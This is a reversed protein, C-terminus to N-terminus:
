RNGQGPLYIQFGLSVGLGSISNSSSIDAKSYTYGLAAELAVSRTIFHAYGAKIGALFAVDSTATSGGIGVEGEGFFRGTSSSGEPFFYRVHPALKYNWINDAEKRTALGGGLTLGIAIGDSVFYSARPEININFTESSFNYGLSGISGGVMWNGRQIPALGVSESTQPRNVDVNQANVALFGSLLFVSFLFLRKM